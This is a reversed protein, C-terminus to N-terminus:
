AEKTREETDEKETGDEGSEVPEEGSENDETLEEVEVPEEGEITTENMSYQKEQESINVKWSSSFDVSIDLGFMENIKELANKRETLMDECFPLLIDDSINAETTNIYERKINYNSQLGLENYMSAKLYQQLEILERIYNTNITSNHVKIGDFFASEGVVSLEGKVIKSVYDKASELTNDDSASIINLMRTSITVSRLSIDNEILLVGYKSLLPILGQEMSDNRILIGDKGIIFNKSLNLAPNSVTYVTPEYYVNLEGGASGTFVYYDNNVKTFFLNGTTQLLYELNRQPITDPLNEYEFMSQTRDLMYTIFNNLAKEKDVIYTDARIFDKYHKISM